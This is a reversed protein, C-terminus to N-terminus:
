AKRYEAEGIQGRSFVHGGPQVLAGEPHKDAAPYSRHQGYRIVARDPKWGFYGLLVDTYYVLPRKGAEALIYRQLESLGRGMPEGRGRGGRRRGARGAPM